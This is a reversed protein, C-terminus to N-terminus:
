LDFQDRALASLRLSQAVQHHLLEEQGSQAFYTREIPYPTQPDTGARTQRDAQPQDMSSGGFGNSVQVCVNETLVPNGRYLRETLDDGQTTAFCTTFM